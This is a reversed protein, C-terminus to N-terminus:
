SDTANIDAGKLLLDRVDQLKGDRAATILSSDMTVAPLLHVLSVFSLLWVHWSVHDWNKLGYVYRNTQLVANM